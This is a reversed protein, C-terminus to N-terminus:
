AAVRPLEASVLRVHPVSARLQKILAHAHRQGDPDVDALVTVSEIFDPVAAAVAPLRSASGAAWAGLGMAAHASLADEIGEAIALGLLDGPAAVVIPWGAAAGIMIKDTPTGAKGSGDPALRTIHVGRVAEEAIVLEGPKTEIPLGFAALMAPGHKGRPPLYGLTGPLAGRYGRWRLYTEAITGAIPRRLSWLWRAKGRREAGAIREREAAEIRARELAARDPAPARPDRTHGKAGCRVCHFSAFGPAIRWVRLVKRRQNVPARRAPGCEPCAIDHQGLRGGTATDIARLSIASAM